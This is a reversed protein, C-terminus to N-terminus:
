AQEAENDVMTVECDELGLVGDGDGNDEREEESGDAAGYGRGRLRPCLSRYHCFREYRTRM